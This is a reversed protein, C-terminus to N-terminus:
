LSFCHDPFFLFNWSQFVSLGGERCVVFLNPLGLIQQCQSYMKFPFLVKFYVQFSVWIGNESTRKREKQFIYKLPVALYFDLSVYEDRYLNVAKYLARVTKLHEGLHTYTDTSAMKEHTQWLENLGESFGALYPTKTRTLSPPASVWLSFYNVQLWFAILPLIPVKAELDLLTLQPPLDLLSSTYTYMYSIWKM